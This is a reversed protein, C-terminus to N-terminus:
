FVKVKCCQVIAKLPEFTFIIDNSSKTALIGKCPTICFGNLKSLGTFEFEIDFNYNSILQKHVSCKSGVVTDSYFISQRFNLYSQHNIVNFAKIPIVIKGFQSTISIDGSYTVYEKAIFTILIIQSLGSAIQAKKNFTLQFESSANISLNTRISNISTTSIILKKTISQGVEFNSFIIQM